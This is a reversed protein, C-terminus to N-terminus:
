LSYYVESELSVGNVTARDFQVRFNKGEQPLWDYKLLDSMAFHLGEARRLAKSFPEFEVIALEKTPEVWIWHDRAVLLYYINAYETMVKPLKGLSHLYNPQKTLFDRILELQGVGKLVEADRSLREVPRM